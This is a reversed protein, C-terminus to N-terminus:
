KYWIAHLDIDEFKSQSTIFVKEDRLYARLDKRAQTLTGVYDTSYGDRSDFVCFENTEDNIDVRVSGEGVVYFNDSRKYGADNAEQLTVKRM